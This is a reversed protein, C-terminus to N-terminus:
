RGVELRIRPGPSLWVACESIENEKINHRIWPPNDCGLCILREAATLANELAKEYQCFARGIERSRDEQSLSKLHSEEPTDTRYGNREVNRM